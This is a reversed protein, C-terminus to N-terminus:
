IYDYKYNDDDEYTLLLENNIEWSDINVINETKEIFIKWNVIYNVISMVRSIQGM